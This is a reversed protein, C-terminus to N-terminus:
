TQPRQKPNRRAQELIAAVRDLVEPDEIKEPLGQEKTAKKVWAIARQRLEEDDILRPQGELVLGNPM